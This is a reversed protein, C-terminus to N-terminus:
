VIDRHAQRGSDDKLLGQDSDLVEMLKFDAEGVGVIIISLPLDAADVILKKTESM